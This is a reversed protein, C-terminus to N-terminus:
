PTPPIPARALRYLLVAARATIMPLTTLDATENVTHGDRGGLGLGDMAMPVIGAVFSIDAAGAKAPNDMGVPGFGLDRSVQDYQGLLKRNGETPAM